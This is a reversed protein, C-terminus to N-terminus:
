NSSATPPAGKKSSTCKMLAEWSHITSYCNSLIISNRQMTIRIEGSQLYENLFDHRM